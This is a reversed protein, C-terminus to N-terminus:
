TGSADYEHVRHNGDAHGVYFHGNVAFVISESRGGPSTTATNITQAIGHPHLVDFADVFTADFFTTYLRTLDNNYACGTTEGLPAVNGAPDSITEKLVGSASRIQYVGGSVGVVLDGRTWIAAAAPAPAGALGVATLAVAPAVARFVGLFRRTM